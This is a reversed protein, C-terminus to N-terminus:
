LGLFFLFGNITTTKTHRNININPELELYPSLINGYSEGRSHTNIIENVNNSINDNIINYDQSNGQNLYFQYNIKKQYNANLNQQRKKKAISPHPIKSIKSKYYKQPEYNVVNDVILNNNINENNIQESIGYDINNLINLNEYSRNRQKIIKGQSHYKTLSSSHKISTNIIENGYISRNPLVYPAPTINKYQVNQDTLLLVVDNKPPSNNTYFSNIPQYNTINIPILNPTVPVINTVLNQSFVPLAKM